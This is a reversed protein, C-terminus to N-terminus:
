YLQHWTNLWIDSFFHNCSEDRTNKTFTCIYKGFRKIRKML